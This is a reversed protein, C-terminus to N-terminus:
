ACSCYYTRAWLGFPVHCGEGLHACNAFAALGESIREHLSITESFLVMDVAGGQRHNDSTGGARCNHAADGETEFKCLKCGQM